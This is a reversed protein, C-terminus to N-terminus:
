DEDFMWDTVVMHGPEVDGDSLFDIDVTKVSLTYDELYVERMEEQYLQEAEEDPFKARDSDEVTEINGDEDTEAHEKLLEQRKKEIEGQMEMLTQSNELAAVSLALPLNSPSFDDNSADKVLLSQITNISAEIESGSLKVTKEPLGSIMFKITRAADTDLYYDGAHKVDVEHVDIESTDNYIESLDNEFEERDGEDEFEAKVTGDEKVYQLNGEEDTAAHQKLIQIRFDELDQAEPGLRNSTKSLAYTFKVSTDGREIINDIVEDADVIRSNQLEKKPM